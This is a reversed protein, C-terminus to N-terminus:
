LEHTGMELNEMTKVTGINNKDRNHFETFDFVFTHIELPYHQLTFMGKGSSLSLLIHCCSFFFCGAFSDNFEAMGNGGDIPCSRVDHVPLLVEIARGNQYM